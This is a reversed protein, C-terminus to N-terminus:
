ALNFLRFFELFRMYKIIEHLFEIITISSYAFKLFNSWLRLLNFSHLVLKNTKLLNRLKYSFLSISERSVVFLVKVFLTALVLYSVLLELLLVHYFRDFPEFILRHAVRRERRDFFSITDGNSVSIILIWWNILSM